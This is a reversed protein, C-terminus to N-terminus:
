IESHFGRRGERSFGLLTKLVGSRFPSYVGVTFPFLIAKKGQYELKEAQVFTAGALAQTRKASESIAYDGLRHVIEPSAPSPFLDYSCDTSQNQREASSNPCLDRLSRFVSHEECSSSVTSPSPSTQRVDSSTANTAHSPAFSDPV